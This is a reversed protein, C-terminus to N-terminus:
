CGQPCCHPSAPLLRPSCTRAMRVTAQLFYQTGSGPPCWAVQFGARSAVPVSADDQLMVPLGREAGERPQSRWSGPFELSGGAGDGADSALQHWLSMLGYLCMLLLCPLPLFCLCLVCVPLFQSSTQSFGLSNLAVAWHIPRPPSLAMLNQLM